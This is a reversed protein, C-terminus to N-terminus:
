LQFINGDDRGVTFYDCKKEHSTQLNLSYILISILSLLYVSITKLNTFSKTIRCIFCHGREPNQKQQKDIWRNRRFNNSNFGSPSNQNRKSSSYEGAFRCGGKASLNTIGSPVKRFGGVPSLNEIGCSYLTLKMRKASLGNQNIKNMEKAPGFSIFWLFPGGRSKQSGGDARNRLWGLREARYKDEKIFEVEENRDESRRSARLPIKAPHPSRLFGSPMVRKQYKDSIKCPFLGAEHFNILFNLFIM